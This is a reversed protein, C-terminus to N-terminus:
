ARYEAVRIDGAIDPRAGEMRDAHAYQAFVALPDAIRRGEGYVVALILLPQYGSTLFFKREILLHKRDPTRHVRNRAGLVLEDVRVSELAVGAAIEPQLLDGLNVPEVLRLEDVGGREIEVEARRACPPFSPALSLESDKESIGFNVGFYETKPPINTYMKSKELTSGVNKYGGFLLSMAEESSLARALAATDRKVRGFMILSGAAKFSSLALPPLIGASIYRELRLAVAYEDLNEGQGVESLCKNFAIKSKEDANKYIDYKTLIELPKYFEAYDVTRLVTLSLFCNEAYFVSEDLIGGARTKLKTASFGLETAAALAFFVSSGFKASLRAARRSRPRAGAREGADAASKVTKLAYALLALRRLVVFELALPLKEVEDYSLTHRSNVADVAERLREESFLMASSTLVLEAIKIVRAEGNVSPLTDLPAFDRKKLSAIEEEHEAFVDRVRGLLKGAEGDVPRAANRVLKVFPRSSVGAGGKEPLPLTKALEDAARAFEEGDLRRVFRTRVRPRVLMFAIVTLVAVAASVAYEVSIDNVFRRNKLRERPYTGSGASKLGNVTARPATKHKLQRALYGSPPMAVHPFDSCWLALTCTLQRHLRSWPFHM